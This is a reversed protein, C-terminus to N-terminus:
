DDSRVAFVQVKERRGKVSFAGLADCAIEAAIEAHVRDNVLIRRKVEKTLGELRAALNVPDGIVTYDMRRESGVNGAIVVGSTVGIGMEVTVKGRRAREENITRIERQMEVAARVARLADDKRELPAGFVALIADGIFKDVMGQHRFIVNIIRPFYANLLNVVESPGIEESITTFNRIDTMLITVDTRRGGLELHDRHQLVHEAVERAMYRCLTSMLRQEQTIDEAVLVGGLSQGQADELPFASVNLSRSVNNKRLFRVDYASRKSQQSVAAEVLAALRSNATSDFLSKYHQRSGGSADFGFIETGAQNITALDGRRNFTLIGTAVSELIREYYDKLNRIAAFLRADRLAVGIQSAVARGLEEDERTFSGYRKNVAALVGPSVGDEKPLPVCLVSPAGPSFNGPKEPASRATSAIVNVLKGTKGAKRVPGQGLEAAWAGGGKTPSAQLTGSLPDRLFLLVTEADLAQEATRCIEQTMAEVNAEPSLAQIIGLLATSTRMRLRLLEGFAVNARDLDRFRVAVARARGATRQSSRVVEATLEEQGASLHRLDLFSLRLNAGVRWARRTMFSVGGRSLDLTQTKEAKGRGSAQVVIPLGIALRETRRRPAGAKLSSAGAAKRM